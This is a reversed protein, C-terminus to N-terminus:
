DRHVDPVGPAAEDRVDTQTVVGGDLLEQVRHFFAPLRSDDYFPDAATDNIQDAIEPHMGSLVIYYVQGVRLVPEDVSLLAAADLFDDFLSPM